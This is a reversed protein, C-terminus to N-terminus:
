QCSLVERIGSQIDLKKGINNIKTGINSCELMSISKKETSTIFKNLETFNVLYNMSHESFEILFYCHVGIAGLSSYKEFSKMQFASVCSFPLSKGKHSKLELLFLKNEAYLIFDCANKVTFRTTEAKGWGGADKLRLLFYENPISKTLKTEFLKGNNM